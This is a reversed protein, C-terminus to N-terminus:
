RIVAAGTPAVPATTVPAGTAVAGALEAFVETNFRYALFVEALLEARGEEDLPLADLRARYADKYRKPSEVADFEYFKAGVGDVFGYTRNVVRGIALGGSLDGVYRTYHHAIFAAPRGPCATRIREVYAATSANPAVREAWDPGVLHTLDAVLAPLRTLADDVFPGAVPDERHGGAVEELAQYIFYHQIVLRTYDAVGLKGGMLDSVFRETEAARHVELTAARVQTSFPVEGVSEVGATTPPTLSTSM